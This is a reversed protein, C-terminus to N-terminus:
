LLESKNKKHNKKDVGKKRGNGERKEGILDKNLLSHNGLSIIEGTKWICEYLEYNSM